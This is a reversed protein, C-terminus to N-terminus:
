TWLSHHFSKMIPHSCLKTPYIEGGDTDKCLSYLLGEGSTRSACSSASSLTSRLSPLSRQKSSPTPHPIPFRIPSPLLPSPPIPYLPSHFPLRVIFFPLPPISFVGVMACCCPHTSAHIACGLTLLGLILPCVTLPMCGRSGGMLSRVAPSGPLGAEGAVVADSFWKRKLSYPKESACCGRCAACM